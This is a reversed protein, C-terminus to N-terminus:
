PTDEATIEGPRVHLVADPRAGTLDSLDTCTLLTQIGSIRSLLRTRRGADLESLVDDLLLLPAEGQRRTLLDVESLRLALVATRMQGQSAFARMDQGALTLLLDDRHPGATTTVRRLDEGRRERLLRRLDEAPDGSEALHGMYQLAFVEDARGGIHGYHERALPCLGGVAYQRAKVVPAAAQCLQEDWVDLQSLQAEGRAIAHLLANRQKLASNYTQLAYFYGAGCQSLLMDLFRRRGLPAGRMLEIDEPSFMVCTVHGMLEGTRAANKGNINLIERRKEAGGFLRVGVTDVGDGRRVRVQVAGTEAGARIMERDNATRHSRGLCCLHVAELLNTKGAGNEGVFVTTGAAPALKLQHYSRFDQLRLSEIHM